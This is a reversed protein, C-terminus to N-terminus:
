LKRLSEMLFQNQYNSYQTSKTALVTNVASDVNGAILESQESASLSALYSKLELDALAQTQDIVVQLNTFPEKM